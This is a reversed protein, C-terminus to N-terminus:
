IYVVCVAVVSNGVFDPYICVFLVCICFFFFVIEINRFHVVFQSIDNYSITSKIKVKDREGKSHLNYIIGSVWCNKITVNLIKLRLM